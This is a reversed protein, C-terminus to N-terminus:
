YAMVECVIKADLTEKMFIEPTRKVHSIVEPTKGPIKTERVEVSTPFRGNDM